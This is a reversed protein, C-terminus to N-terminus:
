LRRDGKKAKGSNKKYRTVRHQLVPVEAAQGQVFPRYVLPPDFETEILIDRDFDYRFFDQDDFTDVSLWDRELVTRLARLINSKGANNAGILACLPRPFFECSEISRFNEIRVRSLRM